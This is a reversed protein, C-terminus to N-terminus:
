ALRRKESKEYINNIIILADGVNNVLYLLDIDEQELLRNKLPWKRIWHVFDPWM